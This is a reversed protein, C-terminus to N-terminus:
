GTEGHARAIPRGPRELAAPTLSKRLFRVRASPYDNYPECETFGLSTYLALPGDGASSRFTDLYLTRYGLAKADDETHQLLRRAIGKGRAAPTLYLRRGEAADPGRHPLPTFAATGVPAGEIFALYIHWRDQAEGQGLAALDPEVTEGGLDWVGLERLTEGYARWLAALTPLEDPFRAKRLTETM